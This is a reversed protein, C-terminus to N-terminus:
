RRLTRGKKWKEKVKKNGERSQKKWKEKVKKIDKGEEMKGKGELQREM